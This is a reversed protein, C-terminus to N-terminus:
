DFELFFHGRKIIKSKKKIVIIYLGSTWDDSLIVFLSVYFRNAFCFFIKENTTKLNYICINTSIYM